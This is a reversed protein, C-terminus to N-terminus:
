YAHSDNDDCEGWCDQDYCRKCITYDGLDEQPPGYLALLIGGIIALMALAYVVSM